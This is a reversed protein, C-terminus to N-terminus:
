SLRSNKLVFGANKVRRKQDYEDLRAEIIAKEQETLEGNDFM